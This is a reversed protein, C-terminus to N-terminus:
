PTWQPVERGAITALDQLVTYNTTEGLFHVSGDAFGFQVGGPHQSGFPENNFLATRPAGSPATQAAVYYGIDDATANLPYHINKATYTCIKSGSGPQTNGTWWNGWLWTRLDFLREGLLLSNSMGDRIDAAHVSSQPYLMGDTYYDGCHADELNYVGNRGAGTVGCYNTGEDDPLSWDMPTPSDSPCQYGSIAMNRSSTDVGEAAESPALRDYLPQQEMQPLIHVHWSLAAYPSSKAHHFSGPPFCGHASEYNHMALAIQKLNNACQLARAAERASQVAPLLLGILIGIITIVV